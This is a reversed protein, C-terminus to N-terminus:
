LYIKSRAIFLEPNEPEAKIKENVARVNAPLSDAGAALPVPPKAKEQCSGLAWLSLLLVLLSVSRKM